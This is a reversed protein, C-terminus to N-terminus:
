QGVLAVGEAVAARALAQDLTALPITKRIALELYSADYFSLNHRISINFIGAHAPLEDFTFSGREILALSRDVQHPTLRKRRLGVLLANRLEFWFLLTTGVSAGSEVRDFAIKAIESDEDEFCWASAVSADLIFDM